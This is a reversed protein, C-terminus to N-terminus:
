SDDFLKDLEDLSNDPHHATSNYDQKKSSQNSNYNGTAGASQNYNNYSNSDAGDPRIFKDSLSISLFRDGKGSVKEWASIAIEKGEWNIKGTLDPQTSKNKNKNPYLYGKNQPKNQDDM